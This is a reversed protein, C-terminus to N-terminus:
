YGPNSERSNCALIGSGADLQMREEDEWGGRVLFSTGAHGDPGYLSRHKAEGTRQKFPVPVFVKTNALLLARSPKPRQFLDSFEFWYFGRGLSGSLREGMGSGCEARAEPSYKADM